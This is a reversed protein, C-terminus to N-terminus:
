LGQVLIQNQPTKQVKRSCSAEWQTKACCVKQDPKEGKGREKAQILDPFHSSDPAEGTDNKGSKGSFLSLVQM